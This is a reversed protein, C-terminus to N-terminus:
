GRLALCHRFRDNLFLVRGEKPIMKTSRKLADAFFAPTVSLSFPEGDYNIEITKEVKGIETEAYCLLKNKEVEITATKDIFSSDTQIIDLLEISTKLEQPLEIIIDDEKVEDFVQLFNPFDGEVLLFSFIAEKDTKLHFWNNTKMYKVYNNGLKKISEVEIIISPMEEELVFHSCRYGCGCLVDKKEIKLCNFLGEEGASFCCLKLADVFGEELDIWEGDYTLSPFIDIDENIRFTGKAKSTELVLNKNTLKINIEDEETKSVFSYLVDGKICCNLGTKLPFFTFISGNYSKICDENFVLYNFIELSEKKFSLSVKVHNLAELLDERKM